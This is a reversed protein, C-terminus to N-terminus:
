AVAVFSPLTVPRSRLERSARALARLRAIEPADPDAIIGAVVPLTASRVLEDAIRRLQPETGALGAVAIRSELEDLVTIINNM